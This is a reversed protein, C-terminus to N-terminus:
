LPKSQCIPTANAWCNWDSVCMLVAVGTMTPPTLVLWSIWIPGPNLMAAALRYM